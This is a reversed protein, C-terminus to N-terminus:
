RKFNPDTQVITPSTARKERSEAKKAEIFADFAARDVPVDVPKGTFGSMLMADALELGAIGEVGPSILPEGYMIARAVNRVIAAHGTERPEIPVEVETAKPSGWMETSSDSYARVGEPVEWFRVSNKELV